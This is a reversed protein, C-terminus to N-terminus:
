HPDQLWASFGYKFAKLLFVSHSSHLWFQPETTKQSSRHSPRRDEPQSPRFSRLPRAQGAPQLTTSKCGETAATKVSGGLGLRPRQRAPRQPQWVGTQATKNNETTTTNKQIIKSLFTKNKYLVKYDGYHQPAPASHPPNGLGRFM